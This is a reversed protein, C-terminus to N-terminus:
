DNKKRSDWYIRSHMEPLEDPLGDATESIIARAPWTVESASDGNYCYGSYVVSPFGREALEEGVRRSLGGRTLFALAVRGESWELYIRTAGGGAMDQAAMVLARDAVEQVLKARRDGFLREGLSLRPTSTDIMESM